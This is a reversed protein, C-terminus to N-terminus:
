WPYDKRMEWGDNMIISACWYGSQKKNCAHSSQTLIKDRDFEGYSWTEPTGSGGLPQLGYQSSFIFLFTDKGIQNPKSLGNTDIGVWIANETGSNLNLTLLTGDTLIIHFSNAYGKSYTTGNYTSGDLNKRPAIAWLESSTYENTFQVYNKIYKNFFEDGNLTTDWFESSENYAESHKIAQQVISYTKKLRTVTEQKKYNAVLSPMTMAAVIGIIGLTILVEALTFGNSFKM